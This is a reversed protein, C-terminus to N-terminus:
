LGSVIAVFVGVSRRSLCSRLKAHRITPSSNESGDTLCPPDPTMTLSQILEAPVTGTRQCPDRLIDVGTNVDINEAVVHQRRGVTQDTEVEQKLM